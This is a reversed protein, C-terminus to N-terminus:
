KAKVTDELPAYRTWPDVEVYLPPKEPDKMRKKLQQMVLSKDAYEGLALEESVQLRNCCEFNSACQEAHAEFHDDWTMEDETKGLKELYCTPNYLNDIAYCVDM